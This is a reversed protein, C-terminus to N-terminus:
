WMDKYKKDLETTRYINNLIHTTEWETGIEQNYIFTWVEKILESLSNAMWFQNHWRKHKKNNLFMDFRYISKWRSYWVNTKKINKKSINRIEWKIPIIFNKKIKKEVM